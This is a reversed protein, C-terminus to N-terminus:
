EPMKMESSLGPLVSSAVGSGAEASTPCGGLPPIRIVGACPYAFRFSQPLPPGGRLRDGEEAGRWGGVGSTRALTTASGSGGHSQVIAKMREFYRALLARLAEPDRSEGLTSAWRCVKLVPSTM